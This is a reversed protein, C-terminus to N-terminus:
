LDISINEKKYEEIEFLQEEKFGFIAAIINSPVSSIATNYLTVDGNYLRRAAQLNNEIISLNKQLNMFQENGKLDPNAEGVAMIHNVENNLESAKKLDKNKEANYAQRLEAVKSLVTEEYKAYGKVVEVLNPILDFRQNLYVEIGSKSHKIKNRLTVFKNFEYIIYLVFVVAIIIIVKM